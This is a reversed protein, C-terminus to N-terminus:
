RNIWNVLQNQLLVLVERRAGSLLLSRQRNAVECQTSAGAAFSIALGKPSAVQELTQDIFRERSTKAVGELAKTQAHLIDRQSRMKGLGFM